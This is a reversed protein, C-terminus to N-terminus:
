RSRPNGKFLHNMRYKLADNVHQRLTRNKFYEKVGGASCRIGDAYVTVSPNYVVQFGAEWVKHCLDPDSMFIKYDENLGGFQDWLSKRIVWFSSQLWDVSQEKAYDMHRMEDKAVASKFYPLKRVWTRRAVQLHFKPFSRVTMTINNTDEDIQRPGCIGVHPRVEMYDILNQLTDVHSWVIDPNVILLYEGSALKAGQNNGRTYGVNESNIHVQVNEHQELKKLREAHEKNCSNDIVIVEIPFDVQQKLISEVNEVVRKSKLYNLIIISAKPKM